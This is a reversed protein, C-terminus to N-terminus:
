FHYTDKQLGTVPATILNSHCVRQWARQGKYWFCQVTMDCNEANGVIICMNFILAKILPQFSLSQPSKHISCEEM